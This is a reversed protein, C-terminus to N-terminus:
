YILVNQLALKRLCLKRSTVSKRFFGNDILKISLKVASYRFDKRLAEIKSLGFNESYRWCLDEVSNLCNNKGGRQGCGLENGEKEIWTEIAQQLRSTLGHKDYIFHGGRRIGQM